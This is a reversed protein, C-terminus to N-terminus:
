LHLEVKYKPTVITVDHASRDQLTIIPSKFYFTEKQKHYVELPEFAGDECGDPDPDLRYHIKGTSLNYDFTSFYDCPRGFYSTHGILRLATGDWRYIDTESWKWSSGGSQTVRLTNAKIDIGEYPDGMMGGDRSGMLAQDSEQWLMWRGGESKYVCLKRDASAYVSDPLVTEYVIVREDRGDKDLDGRISDLPTLGEPVPIRQAFLGTTVLLLAWGSKM